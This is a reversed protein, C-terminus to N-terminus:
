RAPMRAPLSLRPVNRGSEMSLRLSTAAMRVRMISVAARFLRVRYVRCFPSADRDDAVGRNRRKKCFWLYGRLGRAAIGDPAEPTNNPIM